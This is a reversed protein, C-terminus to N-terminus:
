SIVDQAKLSPEALYLLLPHYLTLVIWSSCVNHAFARLCVLDQNLPQSTPGPSAQLAYDLSPYSLHCM